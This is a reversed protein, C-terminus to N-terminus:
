MPRKRDAMFRDFEERDRAERLKRVFAAFEAQETELRNLTEARYADFAANGSSTSPQGPRWMERVKAALDDVLQDISGGWLIYGILALGLPWWVVFGLIMAFIGLPTWRGRRFQTSTM